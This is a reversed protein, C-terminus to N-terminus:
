KFLGQAGWLDTVLGAHDSPWLGHPSTRSGPEVGVGEVSLAGPFHAAKGWSESSRLFIFDIRQQLDPDPNTVDVDDCCTLGPDHRGPNASAWLDRFGADLIADYTPTWTPDGPASAANSNFDGLLFTVGDLGAVVESSYPLGRRDIEDM